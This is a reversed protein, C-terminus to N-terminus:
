LAFKIGRLKLCSCPNSEWNRISSDREMNEQRNTRLQTAQGTGTRHRASDLVGIIMATFPLLILIRTEHARRVPCHRKSSNEILFQGCKPYM